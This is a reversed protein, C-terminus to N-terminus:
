SGSVQRDQYLVWAAIPIILLSFPNVLACLAFLASGMIIESRRDKTGKARLALTSCLLGTAGLFALFVGAIAEGASGLDSPPVQSQYLLWLGFGLQLGTLIILLFVFYRTLRPM